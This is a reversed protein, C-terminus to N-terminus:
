LIECALPGRTGTDKMQRVCTQGCARGEVHVLIILPVLGPAGPGPGKGYHKTSGGM